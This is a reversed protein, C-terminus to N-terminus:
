ISIYIYIIRIMMMINHSNIHMSQNCQNFSLHSQQNIFQMCLLIIIYIYIYPNLNIEQQSIKNAKM